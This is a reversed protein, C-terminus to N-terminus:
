ANNVKKILEEIREAYVERVQNRRDDSAEYLFPRPKIGRQPWGFHIIGAYPVTARGAKVKGASQSAQPTISRKLNGTKGVPVLDKARDAVVEAAAKHALRLEKKLDKDQLDRIQKRLEKAGEMKIVKHAPASV